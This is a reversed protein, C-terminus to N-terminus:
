REILRKWDDQQPIDNYIQNTAIWCQESDDFQLEKFSDRLVRVLINGNQVNEAIVDVEAKFKHLQVGLPQVCLSKLM